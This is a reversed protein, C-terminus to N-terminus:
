GRYDVLQIRSHSERSDDVKELYIFPFLPLGEIKLLLAPRPTEGRLDIGLCLRALLSSVLSEMPYLQQSLQTSYYTIWELWCM